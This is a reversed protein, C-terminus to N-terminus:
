RKETLSWEEVTWYRTAIEDHKEFWAVAGPDAMWGTWFKEAEDRSEFEFEIAFSASNGTPYSYLRSAHLHPSPFRQLEAQLLDLMETNHGPKPYYFFRQVLMKPRRGDDQSDDM